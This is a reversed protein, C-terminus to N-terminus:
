LFRIYDRNSEPQTEMGVDKQMHPSMKTLLAYRQKYRKSGFNWSLKTKPLTIEFDFGWHLAIRM